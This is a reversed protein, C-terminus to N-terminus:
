SSNLVRVGVKYESPHVGPQAIQGGATMVMFRTDVAPLTVSAREVKPVVGPMPGVAQYATLHMRRTICSPNLGIENVFFNHLRHADVSCLFLQAWIEPRLGNKAGDSRHSAM